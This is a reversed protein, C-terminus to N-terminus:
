PRLSLRRRRESTLVLVDTTVLMAAASTAAMLAGRLVALSDLIGAEAMHAYAGAGADFAHGPGLREIEALAVPPHVAGHNRVIQAAPEALARAVAAVGAAEDASAAGQQAARVAPVCALYAAGGGPAMGEALALDLVRLAKRALEKRQEREAATYGGVKVIGVGGALRAARLRLRDREPDALTLRAMRGRLEAVRRQLLADDGGGGTITVHEHTVVARQARGLWAPQTAQPPRGLAEAAVQGGTLLAIDALDDALEAAGGALIAAGITLAGRTHNLTLTTLADGSIGRAVILLPPKGPAQAALELARRVESVRALRQDVALILPEALTLETAGEPMLARAAPYARWRGGPLYARDLFPAAYEEVQLAAGPGLVDFLEGVLRGLEADGTVGAAIGALQEHGDVPIAQAGLAPLAAALGRELGRRVRTPCAGAAVSRVSERVMARALVAATAAGDGYRERVTWVMNRALMAGADEGREPLRVVRRAVTGADALLEPARRGRGHLVGGRCPGLTRALLAALREFGRAMALLAQPGRILAPGTEM